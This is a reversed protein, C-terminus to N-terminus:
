VIDQLECRGQNFARVAGHQCGSLPSINYWALAPLITTPHRIPGEYMEILNTKGESVIVIVDNRAFSVSM